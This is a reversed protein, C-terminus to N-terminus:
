MHQSTRHPFPVPESQEPEWLLVATAVIHPYRLAEYQCLALSPERSYTVTVAFCYEVPLVCAQM